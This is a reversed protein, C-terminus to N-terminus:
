LLLQLTSGLNVAPERSNYSSDPVKPAARDSSSQDGHCFAIM